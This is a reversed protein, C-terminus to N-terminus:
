ESLQYSSYFDVKLQIFRELDGLLQFLLARSEFEERTEPLARERFHHLLSAIDTLLDFAPNELSIQEATAEFLDALIHNEQSQLHLKRISESMNKLIKEQERRMEFYHVQYNTSKFLQNNSEIYVAELAQSLTLELHAILQGDNSGDGSRLLTALRRLIERLENEVVDIYRLILKQKSPMYLNLILAIGAGILLLAIENIFLGLSLDKEAYIHLVLVTIPALGTELGWHYSLPVFFTMYLGLVWLHYGFLTFLIGAIGFALITSLLRQKAIKFTSRRTDLVSLIAIVGASTAYSLQCVTAIWTAITLALVLKLTRQLLSM